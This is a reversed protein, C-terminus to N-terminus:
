ARDRHYSWLSRYPLSPPMPKIGRTWLGLLVRLKHMAWGLRSHPWEGPWHVFLPVEGQHSLSGHEVVAGAVGAYFEQPYPRGLTRLSTRRLTSTVMLYNLFPQEACQLAMHAVLSLASDLNDVGKEIEAAAERSSAIFGTNASFAVQQDSLVGADDITPRWVWSKLEPMNSSAVVIDYDALLPFVIDLSKLVITDVDVYIFQQFPGHWCALKRYHGLAQNPHFRAAIRDCAELRSQDDYVLFDYRTSLACVRDCRRDYPILCLPLSPNHARFSHLFGKVWELVRDNALFYVGRERM